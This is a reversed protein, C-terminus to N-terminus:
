KDLEKLVKRWRGKGRPPFGQTLLYRVIAVLIILAVAIKLIDFLTQM